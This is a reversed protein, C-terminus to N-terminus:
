GIAAALAAEFDDTLALGGVPNLHSADAYALRGGLVPSCTRDDCFVPWPDVMTVGPITALQAEETGRVWATREFVQEVPQACTFNLVGGTCPDPGLKASYDRWQPVENVYVVPVGAQTLEHASRDVGAPFARQAMVAAAAPPLTAEGEALDLLDDVMEACNDIRSNARTDRVFPCDGATLALVDYGLDNGAAIVGASVADAHSDGALLVWGRADPVRHWCRDIDARDYHTDLLLCGTPIGAGEGRGDTYPVLRPGLAMVVVAIAIVGASTAVAVAGIRRPRDIPLRRIPEEILHYSLIAPVFSVAAAIVPTWPSPWLMTAFLIVPWHWLYISYSWDGIRVMPTTALMRSMPHEPQTGAILLLATGVVPLVAVVGPFPMSGDIWLVSVAILALGAWGVVNGARATRVKVAWISLLAGVGFEWARTFSMYFAWAQPQSTLGLPTFGYSLGVSYAFSVVTLVVVVLSIAKRSHKAALWILLPFGLYFQEEVSLSWTHLLPNTEAAADFYGGVTRVIVVNAVLLMTGIGTKGTTQLPGLPSQFLLAAILVVATMLALAPLLRKARRVYFTAFGFTGQGLQRLILATIVFGSIVFFIDVGVFGGRLPLGAHFAVVVLVAVARLGQIDPRRTSSEGQTPSDLLLPAPM